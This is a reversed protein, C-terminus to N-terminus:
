LATAFTANFHPKQWYKNLADSKAEISNDPVGNKFLHNNTKGGNWKKQIKAIKKEDEPDIWLHSWGNYCLNYWYTWAADENFELASV